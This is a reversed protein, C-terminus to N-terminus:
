RNAFKKNNRHAFRAAWIVEAPVGIAKAIIQEGKVM